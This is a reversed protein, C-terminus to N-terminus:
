KPSLSEAILDKHDQSLTACGSAVIVLSRAQTESLRGLIECQQMDHAYLRILQRLEVYSDHDLFTSENQRLLHHPKFKPESNIRLFLQREPAVCIL